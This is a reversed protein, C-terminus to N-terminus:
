DQAQTTTRETPPHVFHKFTRGSGGAINYAWLTMLILQIYTVTITAGYIPTDGDGRYNLM